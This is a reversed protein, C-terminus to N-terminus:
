PLVPRLSWLQSLAIGVEQPIVFDPPLVPWSWSQVMRSALRLSVQSPWRFRGGLTIHSPNQGEAVSTVALAAAYLMETTPVPQDDLLTHENVQGTREVYGVAAALGDVFNGWTAVLPMALSPASPAVPGLIPVDSFAMTEPLRGCQHQWVLARGLILLAQALSIGTDYVLLPFEHHKISKALDILHTRQLEATKPQISSCVAGFTTFSCGLNALGLLFIRLRGLRLSRDAATLLASPEAHPTSKRYNPRDWWGDVVLTAPHIRVVTLARVSSEDLPIDGGSPDWRISPSGFDIVGAYECPLFAPIEVPSYVQSKIGADRCFASIYPVWADGPVGFASPAIGFTKRLAEVGGLEREKLLARAHSWGLGRTYEAITPHTSHHASHFGIDHLALSDILGCHAQSVLAHLKDGTLLFSGNIKLENLLSIVIPIEEHGAPSDIDEVDFSLIIRRAM